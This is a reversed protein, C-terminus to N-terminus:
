VVVLVTWIVLTPMLAIRTLVTTILALRIAWLIHAAAVTVAAAVLSIPSVHVTADGFAWLGGHQM